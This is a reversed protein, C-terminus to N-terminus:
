LRGPDSLVLVMARITSQLTNIRADMRALNKELAALQVGNVMVLRPIPSRAEMEVEIQSESDGEREDEAEMAFELEVEGEIVPEIKVEPEPEGEGENETEMAFEPEGETEPMLMTTPSSAALSQQAISIVSPEPSSISPEFLSILNTGLDGRLERLNDNDICKLIHEARRRNASDFHPILSTLQRLTHDPRMGFLGTTGDMPGTLQLRLEVKYQKFMTDPTYLLVSVQMGMNRDDRKLNEPTVFWQVGHRRGTTRSIVGSSNSQDLNIRNNAGAKMAEHQVVAAENGRENAFFPAWAEVVPEHDPDLEQGPYLPEAGHFLLEATLSELKFSRHAPRLTINLVILTMPRGHWGSAMTSEYGNLWLIRDVFGFHKRIFLKNTYYLTTGDEKTEYCELSDIEAPAPDRILDHFEFNLRSNIYPNLSDLCRYRGDSENSSREHELNQMSGLKAVNGQHLSSQVIQCLTPLTLIPYLIPQHTTARNNWVQQCNEM